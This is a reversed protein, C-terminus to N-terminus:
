AGAETTGQAKAAVDGRAALVQTVQMLHECMVQRAGGADRRAIAEYIRRHYDYSEVRRETNWLSMHRSYRQLEGLFISVVSIVDNHSAKMIQVHFAFSEEESREGAEVAKRNRDLIEKLEKLEEDTAFKAAQEAAYPEILLRFEFLNDLLKPTINTVLPGVVRLINALDATQVIVGKGRVQNVVGLYELSKMAERVPIRSVQLESAIERESPLVDGPKFDGAIIRGRWIDAIQKYLTTTSRDLTHPTTM